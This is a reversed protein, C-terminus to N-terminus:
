LRLAALADRLATATAYRADPESELTKRLVRMFEDPVGEVPPIPDDKSRLLHGILATPSLPRDPARPARGALLAYLTAGLSYIDAAPAPDSEDFVEPAAYVPTMALTVSLEQGPVPLAAIGFDALAVRRFRTVLLNAPKIDRHLVGHEHAAAVADAIQVGVERVFGPTMPGVRRLRDALSGGSCLEMVIYPRGDPLTDADYLTVVNPHESLRVAADVERRFRRRDREGRVRRDVVKIAVDRELAIRRAKYVTANGGEGLADFLMYGDLSFDARRTPPEQARDDGPPAAQPPVVEQPLRLPPVAPPPEQARDDGPPAAQLPVAEPLRLPRVAPPPAARRPAAQSPIAESPAVEPPSSPANEVPVARPSTPESESPPPEGPRGFPVGAQQGLDPLRSSMDLYAAAGVARVPSEPWDAHPEVVDVVACTINDPGGGQGALEILRAAARDPDAEASVLDYISQATVVRWLGDTSLLYRDGLVPRRLKSFVEPEGGGDLAQSVVMRQPHTEAEEASLKGEDILSQVPSHDPTILFLEGDRLLYGRTDGIHVLALQDNAWLLATLTAGMGRLDRDATVRRRIAHDAEDAARELVDLLQDPRPPAKDFRRLTDIVIAGALEARPDRGYAWLDDNEVRGNKRRGGTGDAVAFLHLGAYASDANGPAVAGIDSRVAHRLAMMQQRGAM